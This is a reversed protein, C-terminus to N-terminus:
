TKKVVEVADVKQFGRPLKMGRRARDGLYDALDASKLSLHRKGSQIRLIDTEGLGVFFPMLEERAAARAKPINMLKVGKGRSLEPVQTLPLVLLRGESSVVALRHHDKELLFPSLVEADKALTVVSKGARIKTEIARLRAIFGYGNDAGLLVRADPEGMVLGEISAGSPPSVRGTLPEGQSKASPLTHAAVTYSRGTSDLFTCNQNSRGRVAARFRDGSRYTLKGPEMEHGKAARVWGMASLIVTIPETSLLDTAPLLKAEGRLALVSRRADGFEEAAAQLEKKLLTKLRRESALIKEIEAKERSLKEEERLLEEEALRALQRLRMDLIAETQLKTLNFRETLEAAPDPAERVIQIVEDLNVFALLFGELVHLREEIKQRRHTLRARVSESRFELWEQLMDKLNKVKPRGDMGIVNFNARHSRELDTSAFLHSMLRETDVRNSRPVIVLRTPNEHDSEDRLDAVMPLKKTRMQEAIQELIRTGSVQWPLSTIVIEGEEVEYVARCRVMGRGEEYLRLLEERSSIIEAGVPFDPGPIVAHLDAVTAKPKELLHICALAVEGANHPLIDTAMGVAIGTSGNLLLNPLRAPLFKPEEKTGDFNPVWEVTGQNIEALLVAAYRTLKSETYRMAAFSKPDDQSGWNGQGDILPYRFSFAQAMLVMAEYCASDGHPHYQGIVDGVTRASKAHKAETGLRLRHMAYVIRRQVPKLGDGIFPLARDNIVFMSYNLYATEAFERLSVSEHTEGTGSETM